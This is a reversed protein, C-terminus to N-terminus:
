PRLLAVPGPRHAVQRAHCACATPPHCPEGAKLRALAHRHHANVIAANAARLTDERLYWQITWDITDAPIGTLEAMRTSGFCGARGSPREIRAIQPGEAPMSPM